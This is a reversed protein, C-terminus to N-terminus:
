ELHKLISPDLYGTASDHTTLFKTNRLLTDAALDKTLVPAANSVQGRRSAQQKGIKRTAQLFPAEDTDEMSAPVGCTEGAPNTSCDGGIFVVSATGLVLLLGM